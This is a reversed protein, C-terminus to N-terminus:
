SQLSQDLPSIPGGGQISHALPCTGLRILFVWVEDPSGLDRPLFGPQPPHLPLPLSLKARPSNDWSAWALQGGGRTCLPSAQAHPVLDRLHIPQAQFAGGHAAGHFHECAAATQVQCHSAHASHRADPEGLLLGCPSFAQDRGQGQGVRDLGGLGRCSLCSVFSEAHSKAIGPEQEKQGGPAPFM